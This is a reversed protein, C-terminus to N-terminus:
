SAIHKPPKDRTLAVPRKSFRLYRRGVAHVLVVVLLVLVLLLVVVLLVACDSFSRGFSKPM